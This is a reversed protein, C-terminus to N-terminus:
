RSGIVLDYVLVNEWRQRERRAQIREKLLNVVKFGSDRIAEGLSEIARQGSYDSYALITHGEPRLHESAQALFRRLADQGEDHTAADSRTRPRSAVWPANFIILDFRRGNVPDFLDGGSTVEVAGPSIKGEGIFRDVNLKTAALAEPMLDTATVKTRRDRLVEAALISLCGSGCGMDLAETGVPLKGKIAELAKRILGITEQSRPPLVSGPALISGGIAPVPYPHELDKQLDCVSLVPVLFPKGGSADLPDGLLELLYPISFPPEVDPFSDGHAVVMLRYPALQSGRRRHGEPSDGKLVTKRKSPREAEILEARRRDVYDRFQM